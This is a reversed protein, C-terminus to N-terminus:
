ADARSTPAPRWETRRVVLAADGPVWAGCDDAVELTARARVDYVRMKQIRPVYVHLTTGGENAELDHVADVTVALTDGRSVVRRARPRVGSPDLVYATETFRGELVAVMGRASGHDHPACRAGRRWGALMVEGRACAYLVRRGYPEGDRPAPTCGLLVDRRALILRALASARHERVHAIADDWLSGLNPTM